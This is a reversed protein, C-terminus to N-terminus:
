EYAIYVSGQCNNTTGALLNIACDIRAGGLVPIDTTIMRPLLANNLGHNTALGESTAHGCPWQAPAFDVDDSTLTFFPLIEEGTTSVLDQIVEAGIAVIRTAKEALTITGVANAGAGNFSATVRDFFTYPKPVPISKGFLIGLNFVDGATRACENIVNFGLVAKGTAEWNVPYLALPSKPKGTAAGLFSDVAALPYRSPAPNPVVDGSITVVQISAMMAEAASAASMCGYGWVGHITWKAGAPLTINPCATVTGAVTGGTVTTYMSHQDAQEGPM